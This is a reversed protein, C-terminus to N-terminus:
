KWAILAGGIGCCALGAWLNWPTPEHFVFRGLLVPVLAGTAAWLVAARGLQGATANLVGLWAASVAVYSGMALAAYVTGAGQTWRKAAIDGLAVIVDAVLALIIARANINM